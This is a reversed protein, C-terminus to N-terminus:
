HAATVSHAVDSDVDDSDSGSVSPTAAQTQAATAQTAATTTRATHQQARKTATSSSSNSTSSSSSASASNSDHMLALLKDICLHPSYHQVVSATRDRDDASMKPQFGEMKKMAKSTSMGVTMVPMDSNAVYDLIYTHPINGPPSGTTCILTTAYLM